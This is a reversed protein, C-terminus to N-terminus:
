LVRFISVNFSIFLYINKPSINSQGLIRSNDVSMKFKAMERLGDKRVM